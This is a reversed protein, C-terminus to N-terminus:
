ISPQIINKTDKNVTHVIKMFCVVRRYSPKFYTNCRIKSQHWCYITGRFIWICKLFIDYVCCCSGYFIICCKQKPSLTNNYLYVYIIHIYQTLNNAQRQMFVLVFVCMSMSVYQCVNFIYCLFVLGFVLLWFEYFTTLIFSATFYPLTIKNLLGQGLPDPNM